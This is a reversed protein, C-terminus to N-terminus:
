LVKRPRWRLAKIPLSDSEPGTIIMMDDFIVSEKSMWKDSGNIAENPDIQLLITVM